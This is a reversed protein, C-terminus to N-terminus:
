RILDTFSNAFHLNSLFFQMFVSQNELFKTLFDCFHLNQFFAQMKLNQSKWLVSESELNATLDESIQLNKSITHPLNKIKAINLKKHLM